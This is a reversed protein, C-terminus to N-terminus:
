RCSQSRHQAPLTRLADRYAPHDQYECGRMVCWDTLANNLRVLGCQSCVRRGLFKTAPHKDSFSHKM